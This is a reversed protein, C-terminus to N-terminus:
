FTINNFQNLYESVILQNINATTQFDLKMKQERLFEQTVLKM